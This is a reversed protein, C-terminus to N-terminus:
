NLESLNNLLQWSTIQVASSYGTLASLKIKKGITRRPVSHHSGKDQVHENTQIINISVWSAKGGEAWLFM